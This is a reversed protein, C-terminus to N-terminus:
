EDKVLAEMKEYTELASIISFMIGKLAKADAAKIIFDKDTKQVTFREKQLDKYEVSLLRQIKPDKIRLTFEYRM